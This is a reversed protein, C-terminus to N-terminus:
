LCRVYSQPGYFQPILQELNQILTLNNSANDLCAALIQNELGYQQLCSSIKEALYAGTHVLTL